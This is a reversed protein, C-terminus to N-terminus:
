ESPPWIFSDAETENEGISRSEGCHPVQMTESEGTRPDIFSPVRQNRRDIM